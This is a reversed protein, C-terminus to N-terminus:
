EESLLGAPQGLYQDVVDVFAKSGDEADSLVVARDGIGPQASVGTPRAFQIETNTRGSTDSRTTAVSRASWYSRGREPGASPGTTLSEVKAAVGIDAEALCSAM